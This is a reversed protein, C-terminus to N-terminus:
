TRELVLRTVGTGDPQVEAVTFATANISVATGVDVGAVDATTVTLVPRNGAVLGMPDGYDTDYIGRVTVLGVTANIGLDAFFTAFAEVFAM